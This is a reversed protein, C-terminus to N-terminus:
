HNENTQAQIVQKESEDLEAYPRHQSLQLARIYAVASWREEESLLHQYSPMLQTGETTTAYLEQLTKERSQNTHFSPTSPYGRLVAM